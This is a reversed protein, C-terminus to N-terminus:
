PKRILCFFVLVIFSLEWMVYGMGLHDVYIYNVAEDVITTKVIFALLAILIALMSLILANKYKGESIYILAGLGFINAAWAAAGLPETVFVGLWGFFLLEVGNYHSVYGALGLDDPKYVIAPLFLSLMYCLLALYLLYKAYSHEVTLSSTPGVNDSAGM